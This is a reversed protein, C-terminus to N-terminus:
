HERLLANVNRAVDGKDVLGLYEVAVRGHRDILYTMPLATIRYAKTLEEDGMLVPYNVHHSQVWPTVRSWGEAANKLNEYLIDISVGVVDLGNAKYDRAFEMFWPIEVKCGGCETAWFNLLVVKGRFRSLSIARGSADLLRFVPPSKREHDPPISARVSDAASPSAVFMAATLSLVLAALLHKM